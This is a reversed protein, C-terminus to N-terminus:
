RARSTEQHTDIGVTSVSIFVPPRSQRIFRDLADWDKQSAVRGVVPIYPYRIYDCSYGLLEVDKFQSNALLQPQVRSIYDRVAAKDRQQKISWFAGWGLLAVIVAFVSVFIWWRKSGDYFKM